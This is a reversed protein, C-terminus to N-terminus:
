PKKIWCDPHLDNYSEKDMYKLIHPKRAWIKGTIPCGCATCVKLQDDLPTTLNSDKVLQMMKKVAFSVPITFFRTWDGKENLPCNACVAANKEATERDCPGEPGFMEGITEIGVVAMNALGVLDRKRPVPNLFPSQSQGGGRVVTNYFDVWGHDHAVTAWQEDVEAEIEAMNTSKRYRKCMAPNASRAMQVGQCQATFSDYQNAKFNTCSDYFGYGGPLPRNRNKLTYLPM